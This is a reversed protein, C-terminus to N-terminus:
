QEQERRSGFIAQPVRWPPQPFQEAILWCLFGARKFGADAYGVWLSNVYFYTGVAVAM